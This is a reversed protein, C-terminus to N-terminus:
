FEGIDEGNMDKMQDISLGAGELKQLIEPSLYRGFQRLPHDIASWLQHEISKSLMLLKYALRPSGRKLAMEFVGRVIRSANQSVYSLDSVLSFSDVRGQSIHAQILINVKGHVNETGGKVPLICTNVLLQDLESLEDDRVKVQEFEQSQSIMSLIDGETMHEKFLENFTQPLSSHLSLSLSFIIPSSFSPSIINYM